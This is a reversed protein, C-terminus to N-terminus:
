GSSLSTGYHIAWAVQAAERSARVDHVRFISAGGAVGLAVTALSGALRTRPEPLDLLRGIFSKRSTGLLIPVGLDRLEGLRRLLTLNGELDKGFGIGPDVALRERPIGAAAARAMSDALAGQVEAMLDRYVTRIQMEAPRGSTHMVILGAGARAVEEAMAADFTLGSIDNIFAAGEALAARAVGSKTTDVSIPVPFRRRLEAILPVVRRLEEDETVPSAGPRTSEGGIDILDAGEAVMEAVRRLAHDHNLYAGGDSFSDPTVNLIGMILPRDLPLRCGQGVLDRRAVSM